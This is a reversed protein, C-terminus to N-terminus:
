SLLLHRESLTLPYDNDTLEQLLRRLETNVNERIAPNTESATGYQEKVSQLVSVAAGKRPIKELLDPNFYGGYLLEHQQEVIIHHIASRKSHPKLWDLIRNDCMERYLTFPIGRWFALYNAEPGRIEKQQKMDRTERGQSAIRVEPDITGVLQNKRLYATNWEYVSHAFLLVERVAAAYRSSEANAAGEVPQHEILYDLIPDTFFFDPSYLMTRPIAGEIKKLHVIGPIIGMKGEQDMLDYGLSLYASFDKQHISGTEYLTTLALRTAYLQQASESSIRGFRKDELSMLAKEVAEQEARQPKDQRTLCEYILAEKRRTVSDKEHFGPPRYVIGESM